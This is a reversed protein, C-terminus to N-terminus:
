SVSRKGTCLNKQSNFHTPVWYGSGTLFISHREIKFSINVSCCCAHFKDCIACTQAAAALGFTWLRNSNRKCIEKTLMAIM